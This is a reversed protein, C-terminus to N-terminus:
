AVEATPAPYRGRFHCARCVGGFRWLVQEKAENHCAGCRIVARRESCRACLGEHEALVTAPRRQGCVGCDSPVSRGRLPLADITLPASMTLTDM